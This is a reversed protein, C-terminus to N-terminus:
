SPARCIAIARAKMPPSLWDCGPIRAARKGGLQQHLRLMGTMEFLSDDNQNQRQSWRLIRSELVKTTHTRKELEIWVWNNEPFPLDFSNQAAIRLLTTTQTQGPINMWGLFLPAFIVLFFLRAKVVRIQHRQQYFAVVSLVALFGGFVWSLIVRSMGSLVSVSFAAIFAVLLPMWSRHARTRKRRRSLFQFALWEFIFLQVLGDGISVWWGLSLLHADFFVNM